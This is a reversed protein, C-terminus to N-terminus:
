TKLSSPLGEYFTIITSSSSSSISIFSMPCMSSKGLSTNMSSSDWLLQNITSFTSFINVVVFFFVPTKCGQPHGTQSSLQLHSYKKLLCTFYQPGTLYDHNRKLNSKEQTYATFSKFRLFVKKLLICLCQRSRIRALYSLLQQKIFFSSARHIFCKLLAAHLLLFTKRFLTYVGHSYTRIM